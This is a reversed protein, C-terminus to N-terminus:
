HRLLVANPCRTDGDGRWIGDRLWSRCAARLECRACKWTAERLAAADIGHLDVQALGALRELQRGADPPGDILRDLEARTLEVDNLLDDLRGLTAANAMEHVWRRRERWLRLREAIRGALHLPPVPDCFTIPDPDM